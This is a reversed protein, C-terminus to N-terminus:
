KHSHYISNRLHVVETWTALIISKYQLQKPWAQLIEKVQTISLERQPSHCHYSQLQDAEESSVQYKIIIVTHEHSPKRNM